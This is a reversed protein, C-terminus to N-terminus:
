PGDGLPGLRLGEHRMVDVCFVGDAGAGEGHARDM